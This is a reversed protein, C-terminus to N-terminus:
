GGNGDVRVEWLGILKVQENLCDQLTLQLGTEEKLERLGGEVLQCIFHISM